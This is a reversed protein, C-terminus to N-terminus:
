DCDAGRYYLTVARYPIHGLVKKILETDATENESFTEAAFSKSVSENGLSQSVATLRGSQKRTTEREILEAILMKIDEPVADLELLRDKVPIGEFYNIKQEARWVATLFESQDLKGGFSKYEEFSLFM